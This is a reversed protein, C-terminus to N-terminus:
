MEQRDGAGSGQSHLHHLEVFGETSTSKTTANQKFPNGSKDRTYSQDASSSHYTKPVRSWVSVFGPKAKALLPAMPPLCACIIGFNTEMNMWIGLPFMTWGSDFENFELIFPIRMLGAVCVFAGLMFTLILGIKRTKKMKLGALVPLPLIFIYLDTALNTGMSSYLLADLTINCHGDLTHDWNFAVPTCALVITLLGQILWAVMLAGGIACLINMKRFPFIRHYLWLISLKTLTVIFSFIIEVAFFWKGSIEAQSNTVVIQHKGNGNDL